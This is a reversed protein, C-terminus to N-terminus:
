EAFIGEKGRRLTKKLKELSNKRLFAFLFVETNKYAEVWEVWLFHVFGARALVLSFSRFNSVIRTPTVDDEVQKRLPSALNERFASWRMITSKLHSSIVCYLCIMM